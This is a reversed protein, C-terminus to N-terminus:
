ALAALALNSFRIRDTNGLAPSQGNVKTGIASIQWGDALTSLSRSNWFWAAAAAAHQPDTQVEKAFALLDAEGLDKACAAYNARGTLQIYGGGRFAWGDGSAEDGNGNRNAYVFNAIAEPHGALAAARGAIRSGFVAILRQPTSYNTNEVITNFVTSEVACQGLFAAIRIPTNIAAADMVPGFVAALSIARPGCGMASFADELKSM